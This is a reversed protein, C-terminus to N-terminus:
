IFTYSFMVMLYDYVGQLPVPKLGGQVAFQDYLGRCVCNVITSWVRSMSRQGGLHLRDHHTIGIFVGQRAANIEDLPTISLYHTKYAFIRFIIADLLSIGLNIPSFM